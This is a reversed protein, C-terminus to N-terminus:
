AVKSLWYIAKELDQKIGRGTALNIGFKLQCGEHSQEAAKTLWYLTKEINRPVGSGQAYSAELAIQASTAGMEAAKNFGEEEDPNTACEFLSICKLCGSNEKLCLLIAHNMMIYGLGQNYGKDDLMEEISICSPNGDNMVPLINRCIDCLDTKKLKM